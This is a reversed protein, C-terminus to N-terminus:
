RDRENFLGDNDAAVDFLPPAGLSTAATPMAPKRFGVDMWAARTFASAVTQEDNLVVCAKDNVVQLTATAHYVFSFITDILWV